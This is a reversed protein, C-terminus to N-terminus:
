EAQGSRSVPRHANLERQVRNLFMGAFNVLRTELVGLSGHFTNYGITAPIAVLLGMATAILAESIGPAVTALSASKMAGIAHFTNMIGWVTGFLGIFPATNASTALFSLSSTLRTMEMDVGQRLARRVNDVVVDESNGAEKSRNFETVGEHAVTYLPSDPDGGLADLAAWIQAFGDADLAALLRVIRDCAAPALLGLKVSLRAAIAMGVAVAEGHIMERSCKEVAHGFTHGLNLKRREGHEREDRSVVAAKLRVSHVVVKDMAEPDACLGDLGAREILGFLPEDGIIGAKVAEALGARIERLPLTAFLSTDCVVFQPQAFVGAMNKYGDLNVGNKGGVSADVCGLLTTSVFGFPVGRMYVSAVFGTVDTVIGGGVGLLFTTRDAGRRILERCVEEVTQLTKHEEGPEMCIPDCGEFLEPRCRAVNRDTLVIVRGQPLLRPLEEVARGVVVRSRGAVQLSYSMM